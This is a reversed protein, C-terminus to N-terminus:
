PGDQRHKSATAYRDREPDIGITGLCFVFSGAFIAPSYPGARGTGDEDIDRSPGNIM